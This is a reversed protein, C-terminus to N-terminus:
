KQATTENIHIQMVQFKYSIVEFNGVMDMNIFSLVHFFHKNSFKYIHKYAIEMSFATHM